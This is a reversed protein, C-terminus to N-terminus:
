ANGKEVAQSGLAHEITRPVGLAEGSVKNATLGKRGFAIKGQLGELLELHRQGSDSFKSMVEHAIHESFAVPSDIGRCAVSMVGDKKGPEDPVGTLDVGKIDLGLGNM